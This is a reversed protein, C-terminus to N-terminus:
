ARDQLVDNLIELATLVTLERVKNRGINGFSWKRTLTRSPTALAFYVLGVPKGESGGEPGAIGTVAVAFDTKAARLTGEAMERVIQESVAGHVDLTEQRVGVMAIKAANAYSVFGGYVADSAGPIATLAGAILGGTCSEATTVTQGNQALAIVIRSALDTIAKSFLTM